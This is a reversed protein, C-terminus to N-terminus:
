QSGDLLEEYLKHIHQQREDFLKTQEKSMGVYVAMLEDQQRRLASLEKLIDAPDSPIM